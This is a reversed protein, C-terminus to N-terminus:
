LSGPIKTIGPGSIQEWLARKARGQVALDELREALIIGASGVVAPVEGKFLHQQLNKGFVVVRTFLQQSVADELRPLERASEPDPWAWVADGVLARSIDAAIRSATADPLECILLTGGEGPQLVLRNFDPEAPKAKWVDFGLAELYAVRQSEIM